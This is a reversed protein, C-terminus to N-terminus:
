RWVESTAERRAEDLCALGFRERLRDRRLAYRSPPGSKQRNSGMDDGRTRNAGEGVPYRWTPPARVASNLQSKARWKPPVKMRRISSVSKSREVSSITPPIRSPM